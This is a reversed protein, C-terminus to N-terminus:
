ADARTRSTLADRLHSLAQRLSAKAKEEPYEGWLLTTLRERRHPGPELALFALLAFTKAGLTPSVASGDPSTLAVDGCLRLGLTTM